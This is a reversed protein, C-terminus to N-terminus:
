FEGGDLAWTFFSSQEAKMAHASTFKSKKYIFFPYHWTLISVVMVAYYRQVKM